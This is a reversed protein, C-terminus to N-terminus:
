ASVQVAKRVTRLSTPHRIVLKKLFGGPSLSSGLTHAPSRSSPDVILISDTGPRATYSAKRPLGPQSVRLSGNSTSQVLMGSYPGDMASDVSSQSDCSDRRALGPTPADLHLSAISFPSASSRRGVPSTASPSDFLMSRRSSWPQPQSQMNAMSDDHAPTPLGHPPPIYTSKSTSPISVQLRVPTLPPSELPVQAPRPVSLTAVSRSRRDALTNSPEWFPRLHNILDREEVRLNYDLLYLLQKEM